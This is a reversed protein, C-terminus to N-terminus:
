PSLKNPSELRGEVDLSDGFSTSVFTINDLMESILTPLDDFLFFLGSLFLFDESPFKNSSASSVEFIGGGSGGGGGGGGGDESISVGLFILASSPNNPKGL